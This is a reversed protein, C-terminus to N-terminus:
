AVVCAAATPPTMAALKFTHRRLSFRVRTNSHPITTSMKPVEDEAVRCVSNM